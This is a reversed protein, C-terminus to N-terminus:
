AVSLHRRRRDAAARRRAEDTGAGRIRRRPVQSGQPGRHDQDGQPVLRGDARGHQRVPDVRNRFGQHVRQLAGRRRGHVVLRRVAAPQARVSHGHRLRLDPGQRLLLLARHPRVGRHGGARCRGGAARSRDRGGRVGPDPVQRRHHRQSGQRCNGGCRLHYRAIQPFEFRLAVQGHADACFGARHRGGSHRCTRYKEPLFTTGHVEGQQSLTPSASSESLSGAKLHGHNRCPGSVGPGGNAQQAHIRDWNPGTALPTEDFKGRKPAAGCVRRM